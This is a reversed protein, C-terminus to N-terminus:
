NPYLMMYNSNELDTRPMRMNSIIVLTDGQNIILQIIELMFPFFVGVQKAM